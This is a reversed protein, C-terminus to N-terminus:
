QLWEDFCGNATGITMLQPRKVALHVKKKATMVKPMPRAVLADAEGRFAVLLSFPTPCIGGNRNTGDCISDYTSHNSGLRPLRRCRGQIPPAEKRASWPRSARNRRTSRIAKNRIRRTNRRAM